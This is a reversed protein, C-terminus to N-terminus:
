LADYAAEILRERRPDLTDFGLMNNTVYAFGLKADPDGFATTGGWGSHGFTKPSARKGYMEDEIRFGAGFATQMDFSRDLGRFRTRVAEDRGQATLLKSKAGAIDGYITALSRADSHGNGGPIEAARWARDNPATAEPKPNMCSQPYPSALVEDVWGSAGKGEIMEAARHDQAEPLGVYFEVGLPQAIHKSIFQGVSMGTVRRIPEGALHGYSLAHYACDTGPQWNPKMAALADVYPSWQYLQEPTLPTNLGNLGSTHSLTQDLTIHEKGQAAFEPWIDAIPKDYHLKGREVLMAVAAAVVGKTSSWVNAVTDRQWLKTKAKNAHGAWIDVVLKGGVMVAVAAGHELGDAFNAALADKLKSFQADTTGLIIESTM